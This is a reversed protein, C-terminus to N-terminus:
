KILNVLYETTSIDQKISAIFDDLSEFGDITLYNFDLKEVWESNSYDKIHPNLEYKLGIRLNDHNNWHFSYNLNDVTKNLQIHEMKFFNSEGCKHNNLHNIDFEQILKAVMENRHCDIMVKSYWANPRIAFFHHGLWKVKNVKDSQMWVHFENNHYLNYHASKKTEEGTQILSLGDVSNRMKEKAEDISDCVLLKQLTAIVHSNRRLYTRWSLESDTFNFGELRNWEEFQSIVFRILMHHQDDFLRRPGNEKFLSEAILFRSQGEEVTEASNIIFGINGAFLPHASASNIVNKWEPDENIKKAKFVEEKLQLKEVNNLSEIVEDMSNNILCDNINSSCFAIKRITEFIRKNAGISRNDPDIILNWVIKIWNKFKSTDFKDGKLNLLYQNLGDLLLRNNMSISDDFLSWKYSQDWIPKVLEGITKYLNDRCYYDLLIELEEIFTEDILKNNIYYDLNAFYPKSERKQLEVYVIDKALESGPYNAIYDNTIIRHITKYFAEDISLVESEPDDFDNIGNWFISAWNNDFKSAIKEIRLLSNPDNPDIKEKFSPQKEMWGLLDAKFNEFPSLIKGRANLKIYLDDTLNFNNMPLVFFKLRDLQSYLEGKQDSDQYRTYLSEIMHLVASITPDLRYSDKFWHSSEIQIVPDKEFDFRILKEFFKRATDRTEYSFKSLLDLLGEDDKKELKIIVWHLLFLTTLRQQGDLPLFVKEEDASVTGYIFDLNLEKKGELAKFLADIFIKRLDAEDERGQAYDRQIMPIKVKSILLENTAAEIEAESTYTFAFEEETQNVAAYVPMKLFELFSYAEM